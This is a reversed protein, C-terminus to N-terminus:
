RDSRPEHTSEISPAPALVFDYDLALTGDPETTWSKVLSQRVGFVADSDLWPGGDRFVHTTLTEYGPAVIRFHLHAPRWPHRATANLLAGVPGDTPIPYAAAVVTRFRFRGDRDSRVIGRGQAEITEPRQLDYFGEADAQWVDVVADVIAEGGLGRVTGCVQM